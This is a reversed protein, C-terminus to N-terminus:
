RAVAVIVALLLLAAAPAARVLPDGVKVHMAVAVAMFLAIGIAALVTVGEVFLGILLLGALGVKAAGVAPVSWEPLGYAAFEDPMSAAGRGRYPSPRSYRFLWVNLITVAIATQAIVIMLQTSM